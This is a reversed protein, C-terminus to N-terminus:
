PQCAPPVWGVPISEQEVIMQPEYSIGIHKESPRQHKRPIDSYKM